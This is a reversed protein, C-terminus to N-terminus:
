AARPKREGIAASFGNAYGARHGSNYGQQYIAAAAEPPVSPYKELWRQASQARRNIGSVAGAKKAQASLREHGRRFVDCRHSCYTQRRCTQKVTGCVPCKLVKM